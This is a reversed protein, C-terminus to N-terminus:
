FAPPCTAAKAKGKGSGDCTSCMRASSEDDDPDVLEGCTRHLAGDCDNCTIMTLTGAASCGPEVCTPPVLLPRDESEPSNDAATRCLDNLNHQRFSSTTTASSPSTRTACSSTDSCGGDDGPRDQDADSDAALPFGLVGEPQTTYFAIARASGVSADDLAGELRLRDASCRKAEAVTMGSFENDMAAWPEYVSSTRGGQGGSFFLVHSHKYTFLSPNKVAVWWADFREPDTAFAGNPVVWIFGPVYERDNIM